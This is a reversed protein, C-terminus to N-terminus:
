LDRLIGRFVRAPDGPVPVHLRSHGETQARGRAAASREHGRHVARSLPEGHHLRLLQARSVMHSGIDPIMMRKRKKHHSFHTDDQAGCARLVRKERPRPEAGCARLVRKERPRPEAGCARLVRKERPRPEAGCARLVRKERARPEAGFARLARGSRSPGAKRLCTAQCRLHPLTLEIYNENTVLTCANSPKVAAAPSRVM